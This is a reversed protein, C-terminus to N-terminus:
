MSNVQPGSGHGRSECPHSSKQRVFAKCEASTRFKLKQAEGKTNTYDKVAVETPDALIPLHLHHLKEDKPWDMVPMVICTSHCFDRWGVRGGRRRLLSLTTQRQSYYCAITITISPWPDNSVLFEARTLLEDPLDFSDQKDMYCFEWLATLHKEDSGLDGINTLYKWQIPEWYRDEQTSRKGSLQLWSTLSATGTASVENTRVFKIRQSLDNTPKPNDVNETSKGADIQVVFHNLAFPVAPTTTM